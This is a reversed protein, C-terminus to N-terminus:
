NAFYRCSTHAYSPAMKMSMLRVELLAVDFADNVCSSISSFCRTLPLNIGASDELQKVRESRM